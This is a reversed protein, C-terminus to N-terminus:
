AAPASAIPVVSPLTPSIINASTTQCPRDRADAHSTSAPAISAHDAPAIAAHAIQFFFTQRRHARRAGHRPRASRLSDADGDLMHVIERRPAIAFEANVLRKLLRRRRDAASTNALIFLRKDIGSLLELRSERRRKRPLIVPSAPAVSAAGRLTSPAFSRMRKPTMPKPALPLSM